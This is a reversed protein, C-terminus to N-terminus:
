CRWMRGGAEVEEEDDDDDDDDDDDQAAAGQRGPLGQAAGRVARARAPLERRGESTVVAHCSGCTLVAM